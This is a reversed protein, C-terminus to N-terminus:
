CIWRTVLQGGLEAVPRPLRRWIARAVGFGGLYRGPPPPAAREARVYLRVPVTEGTWGEKWHILGTDRQWSIGCNFREVGATAADQIARWYLAAGAGLALAEPSSYAAHRAYTVRGDGLTVLGGMCRDGLMAFYLRYSDPAWRHLADFFRRGAQPAGLARGEELYLRAFRRLGEPTHSEVVSVGREAASRISRRHNRRLAALSITELRVVTSVLESDVAQFGLEELQPAAVLSRIELFRARTRQAEQAARLVLTAATQASDTLPLGADMQYGIAVMKSGLLPARVVVVPFVGTIAGDARAVWYDCTHGWTARVVDHWQPAHFITADARGALFRLLEPRDADRLREIATATGVPNSM